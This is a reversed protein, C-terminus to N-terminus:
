NSLLSQIISKPIIFDGAKTTKAKALYESLGQLGAGVNSRVNTGAAIRGVRPGAAAGVVSGLPGGVVGGVATGGAIGILNGILGLENRGIAKGLLKQATLVQSYEQNIPKLNKIDKQLISYLGDSLAERAENVVADGAKNRANKAYQRKFSNVRTADITDGTQNLIFKSFKEVTKQMRDYVEPNDVQNKYQEPIDAVADIIEKKTYTKGSDKIASQVQTEFNDVLTNIKDYRVEPTGTVKNKALYKIVSNQTKKLQTKQPPTLRLNIAELNEAYKAAISSSKGKVLKGVLPLSTLLTTVAGTTVLNDANGQQSASVTVDSAVQGAIKTGRNALLTAKSVKSAPILFEAFQEVGQGIKEATGRPTLIDKVGRGETTTNSISKFGTTGKLDSYTQTPDIGALMRQGVDQIGSAINRSTNLIGKTFGTAFGGLGKEGQPETQKIQTQYQPYKQLVMDALKNDDVDQYQPYKQKITQGFQIKDM